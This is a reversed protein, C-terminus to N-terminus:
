CFPLTKDPPMLGNCTQCSSCILSYRDYPSDGILKDVIKDTLSRANSPAVNQSTEEKFNSTSKQRKHLTSREIKPQFEGDPDYKELIETLRRYSLEDGAKHILIRLEEKIEGLEKSAKEESYRSYKSFGFNFFLSTTVLLVKFRSRSSTVLTRKAARYKKFNNELKRDLSNLGFIRSVASLVVGM